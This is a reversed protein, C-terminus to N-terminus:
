AITIYPYASKFLFLYPVTVFELLGLWMSVIM